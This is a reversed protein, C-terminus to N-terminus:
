IMGLVGKGSGVGFGECFGVLLADGESVGSVELDEGLDSVYAGWSLGCM